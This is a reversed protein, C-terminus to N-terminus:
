HGNNAVGTIHENINITNQLIDSNNRALLTFTILGIKNMWLITKEIGFEKAIHYMFFIYEKNVEFWEGNRRCYDFFTHLNKEVAYPSNPEFQMLLKVSKPSATNLQKIRAVPDDSVGIKYYKGSEAIYVKKKSM